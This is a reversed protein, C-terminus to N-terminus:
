TMSSSTEPLRRWKKRNKLKKVNRKSKKTSNKSNRKNILKIKLKKRCLLKRQKKMWKKQRKIKLHRKLSPM